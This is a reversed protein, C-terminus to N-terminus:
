KEAYIRGEIYEKKILRKGKSTTAKAYEKEFIKLLQDITRIDQISVFGQQNEKLLIVNIYNFIDYDKCEIIHLYEHAIPNLVAGNQIIEKGGNEKKVLHHFTAHKNLTYGMFCYDDLHYIDIMLRTINKM